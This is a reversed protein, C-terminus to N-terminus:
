PNTFLNLGGGGKQKKQYIERFIVTSGSLM